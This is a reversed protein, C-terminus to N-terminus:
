ARRDGGTMPLSRFSLEAEGGTSAWAYCAPALVMSGEGAAAARRGGGGCAAASSGALTHRQACAGGALPGLLVRAVRLAQFGDRQGCAGHMCGRPQQPRQHSGSVSSRIGRHGWWGAMGARVGVLAMDWGEVRLPRRYLALLDPTLRAPDAWARRNSVEGVEHRLLRCPASAPNDLRHPPLRCASGQRQRPAAHLLQLLLM